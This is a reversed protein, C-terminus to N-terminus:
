AQQLYKVPNTGANLLDGDARMLMIFGVMDNAAYLENLRLLRVGSVRRVLYKSMQGFLITKATTAVSSAMEMSTVVPYGFLRDSVGVQTGQQWLYQNTTDKLKRLYLIVNDHMMFNAGARYAPNVSHILNIVEDATIATASAATVGLSAATVIGNPQGTNNGTTFHTSQIRGLREGAAAGILAAVDFESDQLLESSVQILKSSYKYANLVLQGFAIGTHSGISGEEAVIAGTNSTDNYTPFNMAEGRSTTITTAVQLVGGFSLLAKELSSVLTTPVTYGGDALTGVTQGRTEATLFAEFGARRIQSQSSRMQNDDWLKVHYEAALPNFRTDRCLKEEDASLPMNHQTKCWARLQTQARKELIDPDTRTETGLSSGAAPTLINTQQRSQGELEALRAKRGETSTATEIEKLLADYEQNMRTWTTECEQNWQSEHQDNYAKMSTALTARKEQLEKVTPM